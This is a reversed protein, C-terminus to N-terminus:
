EKERRKANEVGRKSLLWNTAANEPEWVDPELGSFDSLKKRLKQSPPCHGHLFRWITTKAIEKKTTSICAAIWDLVGSRLNSTEKFMLSQTSLGVEHELSNALDIDRTTGGALIEWVKEPSSGVKEALEILSVKNKPVAM